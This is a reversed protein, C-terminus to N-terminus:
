TSKSCTSEIPVTLPDSRQVPHSTFEDCSYKEAMDGLDIKLKVNVGEAATAFHKKTNYYLLDGEPVGDPGEISFKIAGPTQNLAMFDREQMGKIKVDLM